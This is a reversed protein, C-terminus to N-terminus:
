KGKKTADYDLTFCVTFLTLNLSGQVVSCAEDSMLHVFRFLPENPYKIIQVMYVKSFLEVRWSWNIWTDSFAFRPLRTVAFLSPKERILKTELQM